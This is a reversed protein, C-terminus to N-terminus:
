GKSASVLVIAHILWPCPGQVLIKKVYVECCVKQPVDSNQGLWRCFVYQHRNVIEMRQELGPAAGKSKM